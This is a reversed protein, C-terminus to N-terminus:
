DEKTGNRDYFQDLSNIAPNDTLDSDKKTTQKTKYFIGIVALAALFLIFGLKQNLLNEVGWAVSQGM